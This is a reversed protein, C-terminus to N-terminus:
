LVKTKGIIANAERESMRRQAFSSFDAAPINGSLGARFRTSHVGSFQELARSRRFDFLANADRSGFEMCKLNCLTRREHDISLDAVTGTKRSNHLEMRQCSCDIRHKVGGGGVRRVFCM